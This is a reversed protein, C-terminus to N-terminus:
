HFFSKRSSTIYHILSALLAASCFCGVGVVAAAKRMRKKAKMKLEEAKKIYAVELKKRIASELEEILKAKAQEELEKFTEDIKEKLGTESIVKEIIEKKDMATGGRLM